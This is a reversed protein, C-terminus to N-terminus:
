AHKNDKQVPLLIRLQFKTINCSSCFFAMTPSITKLSVLTHQSLHMVLVGPLLNLEPSVVQRVLQACLYRSMLMSIALRNSICHSAPAQFQKKTLHGINERLTKSFKLSLSYGPLSYHVELRRSSKFGTSIKNVITLRIDAKPTTIFCIPRINV